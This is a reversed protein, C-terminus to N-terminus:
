LIYFLLGLQLVNSKLSTGDTTKADKLLPTVNYQVYFNLANYGFAIFPKVQFTHAIDSNQFATSVGNATYLSRGSFIYAFRAGTYVRWFKHSYPTSTRFRFEVPIEVSHTEFFNRTINLDNFHEVIEYTISSTSKNAVMNNYVLDYAYGIGVGFGVNRAKNVPLDRVFGVHIGRSLNHQVVSNAKGALYDYTLGFYFQDELYHLDAMTNTATATGSTNIMGDDSDEQSYTFLSFHLAFLLLITNLKNM